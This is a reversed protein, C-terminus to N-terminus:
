QNTKAIVKQYQGMRESFIKYEEELLGLYKAQKIDGFDM